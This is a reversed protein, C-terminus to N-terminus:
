SFSSLPILYLRGILFIINRLINSLLVADLAWCLGSSLLKLHFTTYSLPFVRLLWVLLDEVFSRLNESELVYYPM